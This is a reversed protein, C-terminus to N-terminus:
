GAYIVMERCGQEGHPLGARSGSAGFPHIAMRKRQEVDSLAIKWKLGSFCPFPAVESFDRGLIRSNALIKKSVNGQILSEL